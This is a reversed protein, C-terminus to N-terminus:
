SERAFLPKAPSKEVNSGSFVGKVGISALEPCASSAPAIERISPTLAWVGSSICGSAPPTDDSIKRTSSGPPGIQTLRASGFSLTAASHRTGTSRL